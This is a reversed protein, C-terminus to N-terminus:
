KYFLKINGEQFVTDNEGNTTLSYTPGGTGCAVNKDAASGETVACSAPPAGPDVAGKPASGHVSYNGSAPFTAEISGKDAVTISGGKATASISAVRLVVSPDDFGAGDTTINVDDSVGLVTVKHGCQVSTVLVSPAGQVTCDGLSSKNTLTVTAAKQVSAIDVDFEGANALPGDGQNLVTLNGDFEPPLKITISTGLGNTPEGTRGATVDINAGENINLSLNENMQRTALEKEDHGEFDFPKFVVEVKGAAAGGEISVKGYVASVTVSGGAQYDVSKNVETGNFKTTSKAICTSGNDEENDKCVLKCGSAGLLSLGVLALTLTGFFHKM